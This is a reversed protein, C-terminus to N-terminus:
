YPRRVSFSDGFNIEDVMAGRGEAPDKRSILRKLGEADHAKERAVAHSVVGTDVLHALNQDMTIMGLERGAQM